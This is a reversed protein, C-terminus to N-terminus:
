TCSFLPVNADSLFGMLSMKGGRLDTHNIFRHLVVQLSCSGSSDDEHQLTGESWPHSVDKNTAGCLNVPM